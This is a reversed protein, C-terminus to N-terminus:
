KKFHFDMRRNKDSIFKEIVKKNFNPIERVMSKEISLMALATLRDESMTNRLYTKILKLTSFCRETESTTMPITVLIKLVKVVEGFATDLGFSKIFNLTQLCGSFSQVESSNESDQGTIEKRSYFISLEMKLIEKNIMPYAECFQNIDELPLTEGYKKYNEKLFLIAGCLHNKFSFRIRVESTIIDCVERVSMNVNEQNLRCRKKPVDTKAPEITVPPLNNRIQAIEKEFNDVCKQVKIVDTEIKQLQSFLIDVHPMIKSFFNLWLLFSDDELRKIFGAAKIETESNYQKPIGSIINEFCEILDHKNNYVSQVIRSNFNWRTQSTRPIRKDAVHKLAAM